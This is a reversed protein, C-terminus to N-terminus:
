SNIENRKYITCDDYCREGFIVVGGAIEKCFVPMQRKKRSKEMKVVTSRYLSRQLATWLKEKGKAISSFICQITSIKYLM